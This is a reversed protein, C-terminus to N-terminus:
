WRSRGSGGRARAGKRLRAQGEVVLRREEPVAVLGEEADPRGDGDDLRGRQQPRVRDTGRELVSEPRLRRGGPGRRQHRPQGRRLPLPRSRTTSPSTSVVQLNRPAPRPRALASLPPSSSRRRPVVLACSSRRQQSAAACAAVWAGGTARKEAPPTLQKAPQRHCTRPASLPVAIPTKGWTSPHKAGLSATLGGRHRPANKRECRMM